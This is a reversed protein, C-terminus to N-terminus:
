QAELVRLLEDIPAIEAVGHALGTLSARHMTENYTATGDVPFFVEYGHVFASRATTDCCLHTMVGTIVVQEVDLAALDAHLSTEHFADYQTKDIVQGCGDALGEALEVGPSGSEITRGWWTAMMGADDARNAHRTCFVPLGRERFARRLAHIGPVIAGASPVFAHSTPDLFARQLDIILLACRPPRLQLRTRVAGRLDSLICSATSRLTEPTFYQTRRPGIRQEHEVVYIM